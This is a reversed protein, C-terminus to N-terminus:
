SGTVMAMGGQHLRRPYQMTMERDAVLGAHATGMFSEIVRVPIGGQGLSEYAGFVAGGQEVTRSLRLFFGREDLFGALM